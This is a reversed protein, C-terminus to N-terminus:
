EATHLLSAQRTVRGSFSFEGRRGSPLGWLGGCAWGQLVQLKNLALLSYAWTQAEARAKGVEEGKYKEKGGSEGSLKKLYIKQQLITSNFTTKVVATHCLSFNQKM